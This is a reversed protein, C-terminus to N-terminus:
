RLNLKKLLIFIRTLSTTQQQQKKDLSHEMTFTTTWTPFNSTLRSNLRMRVKYYQNNVRQYFDGEALDYIIQFWATASEHFAKTLTDYFACISHHTAAEHITAKGSDTSYESTVDKPPTASFVMQYDHKLRLSYDFNTAGM